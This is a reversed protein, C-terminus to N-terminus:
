AAPKTPDHKAYVVLVGDIVAQPTDEFFEIWSKESVSNPVYWSFNSPILGGRAVLEDGFNPGIGKGCEFIFTEPKFEM